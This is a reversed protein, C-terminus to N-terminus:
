EFPSDAYMRSLQATCGYLDFVPFLEAAEPVRDNESPIIHDRLQGNIYIEISGKATFRLGVRDGERLDEGSVQRGKAAEVNNVSLMVSYKTFDVVWSFPVEDAVACVEAKSPQRITVGMGFDNLGDGANECRRNDLLIELYPPIGDQGGITQPLPADGIVVLEEESGAVRKVSRGRNIVEVGAGKLERDFRWAIELPLNPNQKKVKSILQTSKPVVLRSALRWAELWTDLQPVFHPLYAHSLQVPRRAWVLESKLLTSLRRDVSILSGINKVEVVLSLINLWADDSLKSEETVASTPLSVPSPLVQIGPADQFIGSFATSAEPIMTTLVDALGTGKSPEEQSAQEEEPVTYMVHEGDYSDLTFGSLQGFAKDDFAFDPTCPATSIQSLPTTCVPGGM